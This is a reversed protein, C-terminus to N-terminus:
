RREVKRKIGRDISMEMGTGFDSDEKESCREYVKEESRSVVFM